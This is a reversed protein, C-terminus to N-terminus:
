AAAERRARDELAALATEAEITAAEGALLTESLREHESTAAADAVPRPAAAAPSGPAAAALATEIASMSAFSRWVVPAAALGILGLTLASALALRRGTEAVAPMFRARPAMLVVAGMAAGSSDILKRGAYLWDARDLRNELDGGGILRRLAADADEPPLGAGDSSALVAGSPSVLLIRAITPDAAAERALLADLGTMEAVSLGLQEAREVDGAVTSAAVQMQSAVAEAALARFKLANLGLQLLLMSGVLLWVFGLVSLPASRLARRGAAGPRAARAPASRAADPRAADARAADPRAADSHAADPERM